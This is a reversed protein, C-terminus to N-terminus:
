FDTALFLRLILPRVQYTFRDIKIAQNLDATRERAAPVSPPDLKVRIASGTPPLDSSPVTHIMGGNNGEVETRRGSKATYEIIVNTLPLEHDSSYTYVDINQGLLDDFKKQLAILDMNSKNLNADKSKIEADKSQMNSNLTKITAKNANDQDYSNQTIYLIAGFIVIAGGLAIGPRTYQGVAKLVGSIVLTATLAFLYYEFVQQDPRYSFWVWLAAFVLTLVWIAASEFLTFGTMPIKPM